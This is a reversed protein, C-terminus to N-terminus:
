EGEFVVLEFPRLFIKDKQILVKEYNSLIIKKCQQHHTFVVEKDKFNAIVVLKKKGIKQYAFVDEHRKDIFSLYGDLVVDLYQNQRVHIAKKYFNLISHDDRMQEEVNVEKYNDNLLIDSEVDSFGAHHQDNWQMASRSHIRSTENLIALLEEESKNAQNQKIYNIDKIDQIMSIDKFHVNSMGIEDGNYIFPTGGMFLLVACLMKASENRHKISGYQSLVRSQDHNTLYLPFWAMDGYTHIWTEFVHKLRVVDTLVEEYDEGYGNHVANSEFNFMMNISGNHYNVYRLAEKASINGGVEGVSVCDYYDLVKKKFENLYSFLHPQNSFKSYDESYGSQNVKNGDLFFPEKALHAIADLRFGDVGKDLWFRAIKYMEERVEKNEWNLDPMNKSFLHLYYSTDDFKSWASEYFFSGWNNPPLNEKGDKIIYYNKKNEDNNLAKKFWSHSSSTHNMILDIIVRMGKKHAKDLLEDFDEMSGFRPDVKTHDIIDYGGDEFSSLYFPSVWLLTIGLDKLYDLKEIIGKLDGFGDKNADYFSSPYIQYGIAEKWWERM